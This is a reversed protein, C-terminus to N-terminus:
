WFAVYRTPFKFRRDFGLRVGSCVSLFDNGGDKALGDESLIV